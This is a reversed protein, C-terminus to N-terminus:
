SIAEQTEGREASGHGHRQAPRSAQSSGAAPPESARLAPTQPFTGLLQWFWKNRPDGETEGRSLVPQWSHKERISYFCVDPCASSTGLGLLDEPSCTAFKEKSCPNSSPRKALRNLRTDAVSSQKHASLTVPAHQKSTRIPM